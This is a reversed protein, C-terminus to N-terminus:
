AYEKALHRGLRVALAVATLMPNSFGGTPFVASDGVYLNPVTHVQLNRDVVGRAPDDAMRATGLHHHGGRLGPGWDSSDDRFPEAPVLAGVGAAELRAAVLEQSRIVSRKDDSTLRWDLKIKPVGFRDRRAPDLFVRSNPNPTQEAQTFLALERPQRLAEHYVARSVDPLGRVITGALSGVGSPLTGAKVQTVFRRPSRLNTVVLKIAGYAPSEERSVPGTTHLRTSFALLQERRKTEDSLVYAMKAAGSPRQLALRARAGSWSRDLAAVAEARAEADAIRLTGTVLHPHEMFNRGVLGHENGLGATHGSRSTLLLRATEMAGACLVTVRASVSFENGSRTKVAVREVTRGNSVVETVTADTILQVGPADTLRDRYVTGFKTPPSGAWLAVEVGDGVYPARYLPPLDVADDALADLDVECLDAAAAYSDDLEVRTVPWGSHPVWSRRDMDLGDLPRCWGAWRGSNGGLVRFRTETLPYYPLGVVAGENLAQADPNEHDDGSELVVVDLGCDVLQLAVAIGTPGAGVICVDAPVSTTRPIARADTLTM